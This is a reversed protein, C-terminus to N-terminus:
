LSSVPKRAVLQHMRAHAVLTSPDDDAMRMGESLENFRAETMAGEAVLNAGAERFTWSWFGKHEGTLYHPHYADAHLLEFGAELAWRHLRRGGTYDVGREVGSALAIDLFEAYGSPPETYIASLDAEECVMVGGPKLAASISRMAVVPENLHILLWRSYAIDVSEPPLDHDYVSAVRFETKGDALQRAEEIQDASLDLGLADAGVSTAWRTVYGLGCGFEVFRHGAELGAGLLLARTHEDHIESIVRLRAHGSKGADLVYRDGHASM